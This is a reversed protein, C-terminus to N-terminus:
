RGSLRESLPKDISPNLGLEYLRAISTLFMDLNTDNSDRKILSIYSSNELTQTIIKSFLGHPGVEVVICDSPLYKVRNFFLVPNILNHVFYEASAYLLETKSENELVSTSIWKKSRLKPNPIFKKIEDIM